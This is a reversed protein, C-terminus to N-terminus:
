GRSLGPVWQRPLQNSGLAPRSPHPFDRGWRSKIQRGDLGYRTAICVESDRGVVFPHLKGFECTFCRLHVEFCPNGCRPERVAHLDRQVRESLCDATNSGYTSRSAEQRFQRRFHPERLVDLQGGVNNKAKLVDQARWACIIATLFARGERRRNERFQCIILSM